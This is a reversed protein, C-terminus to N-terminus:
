WTPLKDLVEIEQKPTLKGVWLEKVIGSKDVFIITPTGRIGLSRLSVQKVESILLGISRLYSQGENVAQPLLAILSFENSKQSGELLRRYFPASETCFRCDKSLVLIVTLDKKSWDVDNLLTIREDRKLSNMIIEPKTHEHPLIFRKILSIGLVIALIIIAINSFVELKKPLNGV